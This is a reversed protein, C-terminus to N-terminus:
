LEWSEHLKQIAEHEEITLLRHKKEHYLSELFNSLGVQGILEYADNLTYYLSTEWEITKHQEENGQMNGITNYDGRIYKHETGKSKISTEKTM